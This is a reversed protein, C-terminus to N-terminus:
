PGGTYLPGTRLEWGGSLERDVQAQMVAAEDPTLRLDASFTSGDARSVQISLSIGGDPTSTVKRGTWRAIDETAM